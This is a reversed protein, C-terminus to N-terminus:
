IELLNNQKKEKMFAITLIIGRRNFEPPLLKLSVQPPGNRFQRDMEPPGVRFRRHIEPLGILFRRHIKSPSTRFGGVFLIYGEM